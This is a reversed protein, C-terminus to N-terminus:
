FYISKPFTFISRYSKQQGNGYYYTMVITDPLQIQSIVNTSDVVNNMNDATEEKKCWTLVCFCFLPLLVSVTKM